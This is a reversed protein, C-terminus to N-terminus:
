KDKPYDNCHFGPGKLIFGVGRSILRKANKGCKPCTAKPEATIKQLEDFRHQCKTCEYEYTPM